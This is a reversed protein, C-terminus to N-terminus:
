VIGCQALRNFLDQPIEPRPNDEKQNEIEILDSM